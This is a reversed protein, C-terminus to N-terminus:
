ESTSFTAARNRRLFHVYAPRLIGHTLKRRRVFIDCGFIAIGSVTDQVSDHIRHPLQGHERFTPTFAPYLVRAFQYDDISRVDDRISYLGLRDLYKCNQM